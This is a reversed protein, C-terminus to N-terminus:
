LCSCTSVFFLLDVLGTMIFTQKSVTSHLETNLAIYCRTVFADLGALWSSTIIYSCM